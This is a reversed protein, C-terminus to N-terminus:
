RASHTETVAASRFQADTLTDLFAVIADIENEDLAAPEGLHRNYPAQDVNVYQRYKEPVDDFTTSGYWRKPTSSRSAYFAVVERLSSFVGNHMFSTRLAVNRLSPTRFKGCFEPADSHYRPNQRQCLGLDFHAADRNVALERNRPVGASEYGFDSFPSREPNPITDNLKHCAACGGKASDKFLSLGRAEIASLEARHQIYDDYKSSFPSMEPSMLYAAVAEGLAQVVRDSDTLDGFQRAFESAYEGQRIKDAIGNPSSNNMENPNLLPQKSLESLSDVRGDWFFGGFADVLPADEEWHLHFHRVFKLYLVSPTNRQAFHGPRSGLAVGLTSGHNGAFGHAPDHCSACSTGRPESLAGDFFIRKGLAIKASDDVLAQSPAPAAASDSAPKAVRALPARLGVGRAKFRAAIVTVGLSAAIVILCALVTRSSGRVSAIVSPTM